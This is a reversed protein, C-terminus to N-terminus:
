REVGDLKGKDRTFFTTGLGWSDETIQVLINNKNTKSLERLIKAFTIKSIKFIYYQLTEWPEQLSGSPGTTLFLLSMVKLTLFTM